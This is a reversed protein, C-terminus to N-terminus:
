GRETLIYIKSEESDSCRMQVGLLHDFRYRRYIVGEINSKNLYPEMTELKIRQQNSKLRFDRKRGQIRLVLYLHGKREKVAENLTRTGGWPDPGKRYNARKGNRRLANNVSNELDFGMACSAHTLCYVRDVFPGHTLEPETCAWAAIFVNGRRSTVREFLKKRDVMEYPHDDIKMTQSLFKNIVQDKTAM